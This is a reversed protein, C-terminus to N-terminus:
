LVEKGLLDKKLYIFSMGGFSIPLFPEFHAEHKVENRFESFAKKEGREPDGYYCNWDDFAVIAGHALKDKIFKLVEVASAYYDSDIYALVIKNDYNWKYKPLIDEYFGKVTTVRYLDTKCIRKFKGESTFNMSAKWIKQKDIGKPEPMGAFSDFAFFHSIKCPYGFRRYNGLTNLAICFTNAEHSGFEAYVGCLRNVHLYHAANHFWAYCNLLNSSMNNPLSTVKPYRYRLARYCNALFNYINDPLFSAIKKLREKM